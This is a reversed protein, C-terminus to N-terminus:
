QLDMTINGQWRHRSRGLPRKREPKGVFVKCVGRQEGIRALHGGMENNEIKVGVFHHTLGVSSESM